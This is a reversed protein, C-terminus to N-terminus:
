YTDGRLSARAVFRVRYKRQDTEALSRLVLRVAVGFPRIRDRDAFLCFLLWRISRLAM